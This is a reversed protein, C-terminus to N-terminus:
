LLSFENPTQVCWDSVRRPREHSECKIRKTKRASSQVPVRHSIIKNLELVSQPYPIDQRLGLTLRVFKITMKTIPYKCVRLVRMQEERIWLLTHTDDVLKEVTKTCRVKRGKLVQSTCCTVAHNGRECQIFQILIAAFTCLLRKILHHYLSTCLHLIHFSTSHRFTNQRRFSM